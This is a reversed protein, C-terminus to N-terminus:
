GGLATRLDFWTSYDFHTKAVTMGGLLRKMDESPLAPNPAYDVSVDADDLRLGLREGEVEVGDVVFRGHVVCGRHGRYTFEATQPEGYDGLCEGPDVASTASISVDDVSLRMTWDGENWSVSLDHPEAISPVSAPVAGFRVPLLLTKGGPRVAEAITLYKQWLDPPPKGDAGVGVEAWSDPAYQWSLVAEYGDSAVAETYTGPLGNVTVDKSRGTFPRPSRGQYFVKVGVWRGGVVANTSQGDSDIGWSDSVEIGHVPAVHFGLKRVDLLSQPAILPTTLGPNKSAPRSGDDRLSTVVADIGVVLALVAAAAALPPLWRRSPRLGSRHPTSPGSTAAAVLRDALGPPEPADAHTQALAARLERELDTTETM